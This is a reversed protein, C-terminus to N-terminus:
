WFLTVFWGWKEIVPMVVEDWVQKDWEKSELSGAGLRNFSFIEKHLTGCSCLENTKQIAEIACISGALNLLVNHSNQYKYLDKLALDALELHILRELKQTYVGKPGPELRSYAPKKRFNKDMINGPWWGILNQETAPCAEKWEDLRTKLDKSTRGVKVSFRNPSRIQFAYIFGPVDRVGPPKMMEKRLAAQTTLSLCEPIYDSFPVKEQTRMSIFGDEEFVKKHHHCFVELPLKPDISSTPLRLKVQIRCRRGRTTTSSCQIKDEEVDIGPGDKHQSSIGGSPTTLDPQAGGDGKQKHWFCFAKVSTETDLQVKSSSVTATVWKRCARGDKKSTESCRVRIRVTDQSQPVLRFSSPPSTSSMLM